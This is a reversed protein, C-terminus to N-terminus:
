RDKWDIRASQHDRVYRDVLKKGLVGIVEGAYIRCIVQGAVTIVIIEPEDPHIDWIANDKIKKLEEPNPYPPEPDIRRISGFRINTYVGMTM